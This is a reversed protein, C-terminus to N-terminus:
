RQAYGPCGCAKVTAELYSVRELVEGHAPLRNHNSVQRQVDERIDFLIRYTLGAFGLLAALTIGSLIDSKRIKGNEM